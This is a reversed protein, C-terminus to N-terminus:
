HPGLVATGGPQTASGTGSAAAPRTLSLGRPLYTSSRAVTAAVLSLAAVLGAVLLAVLVLGRRHGHQGGAHVTGFVPTRGMTGAHLAAARYRRVVTGTGTDDLTGRAGWGLPADVMFSTAADFWRVMEPDDAVLRREIDALTARETESLWM